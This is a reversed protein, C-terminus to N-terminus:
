RRDTERRVVVPWLYETRVPVGLRKPPTFIVQEAYREFEDDLAPYASEVIRVPYTRGEEDIVIHIKVEFVDVRRGVVEDPFVLPPAFLVIPIEDLETPNVVELVAIGVGDGLGGGGAGPAGLAGVALQVDLDMTELVLPNDSQVLTLAPDLSRADRQDASPPPPPPPSEYIRVETLRVTEPPEVRYLDDLSVVVLLLLLLGVGLVSSVARRLGPTM